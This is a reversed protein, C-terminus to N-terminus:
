ELGKLEAQLSRIRESILADVESPFVYDIFKASEGVLERRWALRLIIIHSTLKPLFNIRLREDDILGAKTHILNEILSGIIIIESMLVEENHNLERGDLLYTLTRFHEGNLEAEAKLRIIFLDYLRQSKQRYEYLPQYFDNLKKYIENKREEIRKSKIANQAILMSAELSKKTNIESANLTKKNLLYGIIIVVISILISGITSIFNALNFTSAPAAPNFDFFFM